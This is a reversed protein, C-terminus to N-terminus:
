TRNLRNRVLNFSSFLVAMTTNVVDKNQLLTKIISRKNGTLIHRFLPYRMPLSTHGLYFQTIVARNGPHLVLGKKAWHISLLLGHQNLSAQSLSKWCDPHPLPGFDFYWNIINKQFATLPTSNLNVPPINYNLVGTHIDFDYQQALHRALIHSSMLGCERLMAPYEHLMNRKHIFGSLALHERGLLVERSWRIAPQEDRLPQGDPNMAETYYHEDFLYLQEPLVTRVSQMLGIFAEIDFRFDDELYAFYHGSANQIAQEWNFPSPLVTIAESEPLNKTLMGKNLPLKDAAFIVLELPFSANSQLKCALKIRQSFDGESDTFPIFLTLLPALQTMAKPSNLSVSEAKLHCISCQSEVLAAFVPMKKSRLSSSLPAHNRIPDRLWLIIRRYFQEQSTDAPQTLWTNFLLSEEHEPLLGRIRQDQWSGTPFNYVISRAIDIAASPNSSLYSSFGQDRVKYVSAAQLAAKSRTTSNPNLRWQFLVFPLNAFKAGNLQLRMFLDYDPVLCSRETNYGGIKEIASRRIMTTPHHLSFYSFMLSKITEPNIPHTDIGASTGNTNTMQWQSGVADIDPHHDLLQKQFALRQPLSIDDSDMIAIYQGNSASIACQTAAGIGANKQSIVKIRTDRRSFEELICPSNDTSGDDVIILEFNSFTQSLISDIAPKLYPATNYVAMVVTIESQPSSTTNANM